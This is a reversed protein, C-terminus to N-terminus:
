QLLTAFGIARVGIDGCSWTVARVNPRVALLCIVKYGHATKVFISDMPDSPRLRAHNSVRCGFIGRFPQGAGRASPGVGVGGGSLFMCHSTRSRSPSLPDQCIFERRQLRRNTLAVWFLIKTLHILTNFVYNFVNMRINFKPPCVNVLRKGRERRAHSIYRYTHTTSQPLRGWGYVGPRGHASSHCSLGFWTCGFVNQECTDGM